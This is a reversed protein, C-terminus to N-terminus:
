IIWEKATDLAKYGKHTIGRTNEISIFGKRMLFLEHDRQISSRTLGTKAALASLSCRGETKLINLIQFEIKTLGYPLIGLLDFFRKVENTTFKKINFRSCYISLDKARLVCSRANGRSTESLLDLAADEFEINKLHLKFIQKLENQSYDAFDITTLRDRLPIFMKQSETTAFIFHQQKFDFTYLNDTTQYEKIHSSETNMISLFANVLDNPLCHAEDFLVIVEKDYVNPIFFQEFFHKASKITSTNLEFFKKKVGESDFIYNSFERAFQTKGLGKAGVFNLFPIFQTTKHAEAYFQLRTKVSDQGILNEFM